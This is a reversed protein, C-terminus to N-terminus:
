YEEVTAVVIYTIALSGNTIFPDDERQIEPPKQLYKLANM